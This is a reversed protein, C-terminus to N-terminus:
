PTDEARPRKLPPQSKLWSQQPRKVTSATPSKLQTSPEQLWRVQTAPGYGKENRAAIRFIISPKSSTDIHASALSSKPVICQNQAGSYVRIFALQTPSSQITKSDSDSTQCVTSRVALYVSYEITEGAQNTPPLWSLHAGDASKCIKIASPAGPLGAVRKNSISVTPTSPAEPKPETNLDEKGPQSGDLAASALTRLPDTELSGPKIQIAVLKTNTEPVNSKEMGRLADNSNETEMQNDKNDGRNNNEGSDVGQSGAVLIGSQMQPTNGLQLASEVANRPEQELGESPQPNMPTQQQGDTPQDSSDVAPEKVSLEPMSTMNLNNHGTSAPDHVLPNSDYLNEAQMNQMESTESAQGNAGQVEQLNNGSQNGSNSSDDPLQETIKDDQQGSNEPPNGDTGTNDMPPDLLGAEAALAALAADTTAPGDSSALTASPQRQRSIVMVRQGTTADAAPTPVVPPSASVSEVTAANGVTGATSAVLKVTKQGGDGTTVQMLLPQGGLTLSQSPLALFQTQGGAARKTAITLTRPPGGQQGPVTFTIPKGGAAGGVAGSMMIMKVGGPGTVTGAASLQTGPSSGAQSSSVTQITKLGAATSVVIIQSGSGRGISGQVGSVLGPKSIMITQKGAVGPSASKGVTMVNPAVTKMTTLVKSSGGTAGTAAGLLKVITAGQPINKANVGQLTTGPKSQIVGGKPMAAVTMGQSTKVLTVIQPTGTGTQGGGPKQLIIQPKGQATQGTKLMTGGPGPSVKVTSPITMAGNTSIKQTAAAAAALTQIGSMQQGAPTSVSSPATVTESPTETTNPIIQGPISARIQNTNVRATIPAATKLAIGPRVPSVPVTTFKSQAPSRSSVILPTKEANSSVQASSITLKSPSTVQVSPKSATNLPTVSSSVNSLYTLSNPSQSLTPQTALMTTGLSLPPVGALEEESPYNPLISESEDSTSQPQNQAMTLLTPISQDSTMTLITSSSQGPTMSLVTPSPQGPTMTLLTSSPPGPAMTLITPSSQGPAMSLITQQPQQGPAMTLLTQAPQSPAMTLITQQPQGPAMTLLTQSTQGAAMTMLPTPQQEALSNTLAHSLLPSTAQTSQPLSVIGPIASMQSTSTVMDYRQIQLIYADASPCAPWSVELSNTSAKSLQVRGPQGPKETELYWLDKCCVQNNWAKRYGDRGSWLYIRSHIGVACHGARPRPINDEFADIMLQEWCMTKLNLSALTNTCKWEKEHAAAKPDDMVLPVWGGFVFMQHGILTASHLSRPLPPIGEVKPNSWIMTEVDLFWLDGLRCGSMGGYIVLRSVGSSDDTYAIATHSERPSPLPGFTQPLEWATTNNSRLELTYLDNLYRYKPINIKPDEIDNALGGFLYVKNGILTFSHGLRPCPPLGRKPPRPKLRRWEWRSAQLEYLDNSYKGYEVMGGFILIRTGDIVCGYAACGPPVDGKTSPVFWQNTATNYVHLEDVIGENGGGFVVILDKIAVARHGHRPRPQPGSPNLVRKWKM